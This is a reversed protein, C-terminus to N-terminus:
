FFLDPCATVITRRDLTATAFVEQDLPRAVTPEPALPPSRLAWPLRSASDSGLRRALSSAGLGSRRRCEWPSQMTTSDQTGSLDVRNQSRSWTRLLRPTKAASGAPRQIRPRDLLSCAAAHLCHTERGGAHLSARAV